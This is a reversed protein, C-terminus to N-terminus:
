DEEEGKAAGDNVISGEVLLQEQQEAALLQELQMQRRAERIAGVMGAGSWDRRLTDLGALMDVSSNGAATILLSPGTAGARMMMESGASNTGLGQHSMIGPPSHPHLYSLLLQDHSSPPSAASAAGSNSGGTLHYHSSSGAPSAAAAATAMFSGTGSAAAGLAALSRESETAAEGTASAQGALMMSSSSSSGGAGPHHQGGSGVRRHVGGGGSLMMMGAAADMGIGTGGSLIMMGAAADMGIGTGGGSDGGWSSPSGLIFDGSELRRHGRNIMSHPTPHQQSGFGAATAGNGSVRRSSSGASPLQQSVHHGVPQQQQQDGGSWSASSATGTVVRRSHQEGGGATGGQQQQPVATGQQDLTVEYRERLLGENEQYWQRAEPYSFVKRSFRIKFLEPKASSSAANSGTAESGVAQQRRLWLYTGPSLEEVWYSRGEGDSKMGDRRLLADAVEVDDLISGGTHESAGAAVASMASATSHLTGVDMRELEDPAWDATHPAASPPSSQRYQQHQQVSSGLPLPLQLQLGVAASPVVSPNIYLGPQNQQSQLQMQHQLLQLQSSTLKGTGLQLQSSTLKGGSLVHSSEMSMARRHKKTRAGSGTSGGLLNRSSGGSGTPQTGGSGAPSGSHRTSLLHQKQLNGAQSTPIQVGSAYSQSRGVPGGTMPIGGPTMGVAGYQPQTNYVPPVVATAAAMMQHSQLSMLLSVQRQLAQVQNQLIQNHLAAQQQNQLMSQHSHQAIVTGDISSRKSSSPKNPTNREVQELEGIGTSFNVRADGSNRLLPIPASPVASSSAATDALIGASGGGRSDGQLAAMVDERLLLSSYAPSLCGSTVSSNAASAPGQLQQPQPMQYRTNHAGSNFSSTSVLKRRMESLVHDGQDTDNVVVGSEHLSTTTGSLAQAGSLIDEDHPQPQTLMTRGSSSHSSGRLSMQLEANLLIREAAPAHVTSSTCGDASQVAAAAFGPTLFVTEQMVSPHPSSDVSPPLDVHEGILNNQSFSDLQHQHVSPMRSQVVESPPTQFLSHGGVGSPRIAGGGANLIVSPPLLPGPAASLVESEGMGEEEEEEDYEEGGGYEEDDDVDESFGQSGLGERITPLAGTMGLAAAAAALNMRMAAESSSMPHMSVSLGSLAPLTDFTVQQQQQQQQLQAALMEATAQYGAHLDSTGGAGSIQQQQQQQMLAQFGSIDEGRCQAAWSSVSVERGKAFSLSTEYEAIEEQREEQPLPYMMRSRSSSTLTPSQSRPNPSVALPSVPLPLGAGLVRHQAGEVVYNNRSLTRQFPPSPSSFNDIYTVAGAPMQEMSRRMANSSIPRGASADSTATDAVLDYRDSGVPTQNVSLSDTGQTSSRMYREDNGGETRIGAGYAGSQHGGMGALNSMSSAQSIAGGGASDEGELSGQIRVSPSHPLLLINNTGSISESNASSHRTISSGAIGIQALNLSFNSHGSASLRSSIRREKSASTSGDIHKTHHHNINPMVVMRARHVIPPHHHGASPHNRTSKSSKSPPPQYQHQHAASSGYRHASSTGKIFRKDLVAPDSAASQLRSGQNTVSAMYQHYVAPSAEHWIESSRTDRHGGGGVGGPYSDRGSGSGGHSDLGFLSSSTAISKQVAAGAGGMIAGSVAGGVATLTGVGSHALSLFPSALGSHNHQPHQHHMMSSKRPDKPDHECVALTHFGGCSVHLIRKGDLAPVVQPSSHDKQTETGLQGMNGKGWVVLRTRRSDESMKGNPSGRSAVGVVHHMGCAIEEIFLGFLNGDVHAPLLCGEWPVQKDEPSYAGTGGMQYVKGDKNLAVTLNWGCAVQVVEKRELEGRVRTPLWRGERDGTGLCGRHNDGKGGISVVRGGGVSSNSGSLAGGGGDGGGALPPATINAPSLSGPSSAAAAAAAPPATSSSSSPHPRDTMVPESWTFCGGWTFLMGSSSAEAYEYTRRMISGNEFQESVATQRPPTLSTTSQSNEYLQQSSASTSVSADNYLLESNLLKHQSGPLGGGAYSASTSEALSTVGSIGGAAADALLTAMISTGGPTSNTTPAAPHPAAVAATHWWGCAVQIVTYGNFADVRRPTFVSSADGHGLKGFLGNGWTYLCGEDTVAATHYPGCSVQLIKVGNGFALLKKPEVVPFTDGHGLQGASNSGWTFLQGASSIAASCGDSCAAMQIGKGWMKSVQKPSSYSSLTGHGLCGGEGYGWTYLEGARTILAAHRVGVAAKVVDVSATNHVLTPTATQQWDLMADYYSGQESAKPQPRLGPTHYAKPDVQALSGWIYLDGLERKKFPPLSGLSTAVLSSGNKLKSTKSYSTSLVELSSSESVRGKFSRGSGLEDVSRKLHQLVTHEGISNQLNFSHQQQLLQQQMLLEQQLLWTGPPYYKVIQIGWYWMEFETENSSIVDLTRDKKEDDVYIVSFSLHSKSPQLHRKFVETEQGRQFSRVWGLHVRRVRGKSEWQVETDDSSLRFFHSKPNGHRGYKLLMTGKRLATLVEEYPKPGSPFGNIFLCGGEAVPGTIRSADLEGQYM